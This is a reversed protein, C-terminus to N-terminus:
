KFASNISYNKNNILNSKRITLKIYNRKKFRAENLYIM